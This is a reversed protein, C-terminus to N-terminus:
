KHPHTLETRRRALQLWVQEHKQEMYQELDPKIQGTQRKYKRLAADEFAALLSVM